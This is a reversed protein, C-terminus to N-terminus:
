GPMIKRKIFGNQSDKIVERYDVHRSMNELLIQQMIKCACLHPQGTQLKCNQLVTESM